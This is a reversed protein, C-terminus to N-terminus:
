TLNFGVHFFETGDPGSQRSPSGFIRRLSLRRNIGAELWFDDARRLHDRFVIQVNTGMVSHLENARAALVTRIMAEVEQLKSDAALLVDELGYVLLRHGPPFPFTDQRLERMYDLFGVRNPHPVIGEQRRPQLMDEEFLRYGPM